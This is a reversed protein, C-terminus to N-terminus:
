GGATLAASGADDATVPEVPGSVKAVLDANSLPLWSPDSRVEASVRDVEAMDNVRRLELIKMRRNTQQLHRRVTEEDGDSNARIVHRVEDLEFVCLWMPADDFM